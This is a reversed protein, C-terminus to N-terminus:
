RSTERREPLRDPMAQFLARRVQERVPEVKMRDVIESAFAFVLLDRAEQEGIGRSRLYFLTEEQIQGITSGHNCKVDDNHIELTPKSDVVATESLLLNRNEQRSVTKQAGPRVIILGDFIGRAHDDLVGKYLEHSECHPQAHDIVTRNDLHQNGNGVFLGDLSISAGEGALTVHTEVRALAAGIAVNRSIVNAARAQQIYVNGVHYADASECELRYHDVVAGDAAVIETVANTFYRGSGVYTEVVTVQSNSGAVIVNRPHSWIGDGKGIFLLHIFGDIVTGAPIELRAGDQVNATNLAVMANREWDAIEPDGPEALKLAGTRDVLRGNVFVLELAARGALTNPTDVRQPADDTRWDIKQLPALNTYRWAENRTTPWGLKAFTEAAREQLSLAALQSSV